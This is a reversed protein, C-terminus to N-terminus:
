PRIVAVETGSSQAYDILNVARKILDDETGAILSLLDARLMATESRSLWRKGGAGSYRPDDQGTPWTVSDLLRLDIEVAEQSDASVVTVVEFRDCGSPRDPLGQDVLPRNSGLLKLLFTRCGAVFAPRLWRHLEGSKAGQWVQNRSYFVWYAVAGLWYDPATM